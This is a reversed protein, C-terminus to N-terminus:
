NGRSQKERAVVWRGLGALKLITGIYHETIEPAEGSKVKERVSEHVGEYSILVDDLICEDVDALEQKTRQFERDSMM